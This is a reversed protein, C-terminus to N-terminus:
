VRLFSGEEAPRESLTEPAADVRESLAAEGRRGTEMWYLEPDLDRPGM